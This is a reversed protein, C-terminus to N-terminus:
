SFLRFLLRLTFGSPSPNRATLANLTPAPADHPEFPEAEDIDELYDGKLFNRMM